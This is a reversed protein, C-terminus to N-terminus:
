DLVRCACFIFFSARSLSVGPCPSLSVGPDQPEGVTNNVDKGAPFDHLVVAHPAGSDVPKQAHSPDKPPFVPSHIFHAPYITSKNNVRLGIEKKRM